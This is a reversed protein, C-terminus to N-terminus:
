LIPAVPTPTSYSSAAANTDSQPYSNAAADYNANFDSYIDCIADTFPDDIARIANPQCHSDSIGDCNTHAYCDSHTYTARM